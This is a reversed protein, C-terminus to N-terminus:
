GDLQIKATRAINKAVLEAIEEGSSVAPATCRALM